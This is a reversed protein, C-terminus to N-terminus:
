AGTVICAVLNNYSQIGCGQYLSHLPVHIFCHGIKWAYVHKGKIIKTGRCTKCVIALPISSTHFVKKDCSLRAVPPNILFM